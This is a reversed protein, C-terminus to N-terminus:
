VAQVIFIGAGVCLPTGRLSGAASSEGTGFVGNEQVDDLSVAHFLQKVTNHAIFCEILATM